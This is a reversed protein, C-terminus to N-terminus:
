DVSSASKEQVEDKKDSFTSPLYLLRNCSPCSHLTIGRHIENYLQPPVMMNCGKCRGGVAPVIGIGGRAMRIRDYQALIRAEVKSSFKLRESMLSSIDTKFQNDQGTLVTAQANRQGELQNLQDTLIAVERTMGEIELGSKKNQEELSGSLKKLQEIEKTAAQFEQSNHVAELKANSRSLRDQNLDLAAKTQRQVKDLELAQNKKLELAAKVKSLSEDVVKLGAPLSNQGKKLSDIKLDLEQLHELNKLQEVLPLPQNV